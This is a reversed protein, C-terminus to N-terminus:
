VALGSSSASRTFRRFGMAPPLGVILDRHQLAKTSSAVILGIKGTEAATEVENRIQEAEQVDVPILKIGLSPAVSELVAFQSVGGPVKSDRLVAAREVEPMIQKLIELWKGSVSSAFESFGTANRGPRSLSNVFGSGVPDPVISFVIPIKQTVQLLRETAPGGIAFIVDPAIEALEGAYRRIADPDGGGRRSEFQVTVGETWGLRELEEVFVKLRKDSDPTSAGTLVGIRRVVNARQAQAVLPWGVATMAVLAIFRRRRM